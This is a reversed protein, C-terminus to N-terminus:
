AVLLAKDIPKLEFVIILKRTGRKAADCAPARMLETQKSTLFRALPDYTRRGVVFVDRFCVCYSYRTLVAILKNQANSQEFRHGRSSIIISVDRDLSLQFVLRWVDASQGPCVLIPTQEKRFLKVIEM